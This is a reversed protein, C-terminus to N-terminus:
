NPPEGEWAARWTKPGLRGSDNIGNARQVALVAERTKEYYCGSGTFVHDFDYANMRLQFDRLAAACDGYAYVVGPWPPMTEPGTDPEHPPRPEPQPAEPDGIYVSDEYSPVVGSRADIDERLELFGAGACEWPQWGRMRYLYLARYDQEAPSARDPRGEGGVSRWTSLDFQYAGYYGNGTDAGYRDSSECMRLEAWDAYSPDAAAPVVAGAGVCGLVATVAFGRALVAASAPFRRLAPLVTM